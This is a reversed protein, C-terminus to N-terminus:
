NKRESRTQRRQESGRGLDATTAPRFLNCVVRLSRSYISPADRGRQSASRPTFTVALSLFPPDTVFVRSLNRMVNRRTLRRAGVRRSTCRGRRLERGSFIVLSLFARFNCSSKVGFSSSEVTWGRAVGSVAPHYPRESTDGARDRAFRAIRSLNQRRRSRKRQVGNGTRM